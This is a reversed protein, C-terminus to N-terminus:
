LDHRPGRQLATPRLEIPRLLVQLGKVPSQLPRKVRLGV